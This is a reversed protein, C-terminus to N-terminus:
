VPAGVRELQLQPMCLLPPTRDEDSGASRRVGPFSGCGSSGLAQTVVLSLGVHGRSCLLAVAMAAATAGCPGQGPAAELLPHDGGGEQEHVEVWDQKWRWRWRQGDGGDGGDWRMWGLRRWKWGLGVEEVDMETEVSIGGGHRGARREEEVRTDM